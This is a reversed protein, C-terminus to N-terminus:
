AAARHGLRVSMAEASRMVEPVLTRLHRKTLRQAPAALSVAAIVDGSMNRIPAAIARMGIESEEDDFAYGYSRVENLITRLRAPDTVSAPTRPLLEERLARSVLNPPSFALLVRGESTCFAPKRAGINSRIGIAKRSELNHLYVISTQDLVALHVAEDTNDRLMLLLPKTHVSVDMSNRMLAGLSFLSLGLRYRGNDPNQELFGEAVLTTALRHGTSKAVGLRKALVSIGFETEDETFIKLLRLACTVSSLRGGNSEREGEGSREANEDEM